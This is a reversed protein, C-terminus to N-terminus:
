QSSRLSAAIKNQDNPMQIKLKNRIEINTNRTKKKDLARKGNKM